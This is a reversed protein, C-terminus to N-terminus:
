RFSERDVNLQDTTGVFFFEKEGYCFSEFLCATWPKGGFELEGCGKGHLIWPMFRRVNISAEKAVPTRAESGEVVKAAVSCIWFTPTWSYVTRLRIFDSKSPVMALTAEM